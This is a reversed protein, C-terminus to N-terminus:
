QEKGGGGAKLRPSRRKEQQARQAEAAGGKRGGGEGEGEGGGGFHGGLFRRGHGAVFLRILFLLLLYDLHPEPRPQEWRLRCRAPPPRCITGTALGEAAKEAHLFAANEPDEGPRKGTVSTKWTCSAERDGLSFCETIHVRGLCVSIACGESVASAVAWSSSTIVVM